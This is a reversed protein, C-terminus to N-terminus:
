HENRSEQLALETSDLRQQLQRALRRVHDLRRRCRELQRHTRDHDRRMEQLEQHVADGERGQRTQANHKQELMRQELRSILRDRQLLQQQHKLSNGTADSRLGKVEDELAALRKLDAGSGKPAEVDLVSFSALPRGGRFLAVRDLALQVPGDDLALTKKERRQNITFLTRLRAGDRVENILERAASSPWRDPDLREDAPGEVEVRQSLAKSDDEKEEDAGPRDHSASKVTVTYPGHDERRLGGYADARPLAILRGDLGYSWAHYPCVVVKCNGEGSVLEHARHQCVNYFARIVGDRGHICFLNQGAIQFTFYDGPREVQSAHGAYQWTRSLLGEVECAYIAADTYYRAELSRVPKLPHSM